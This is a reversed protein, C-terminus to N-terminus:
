CVPFCCDTVIVWGECVKFLSVKRDNTMIVNHYGM